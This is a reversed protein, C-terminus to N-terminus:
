FDTAVSGDSMNQSPDSPRVLSPSPASIKLFSAPTVHLYTLLFRRQQEALRSFGFHPGFDIIGKGALAVTLDMSRREESALLLFSLSSAGLTNCIDVCGSTCFYDDYDLADFLGDLKTFVLSKTRFYLAGTKDTPLFFISDCHM